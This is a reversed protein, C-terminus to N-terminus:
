SLIGWNLRVVVAWEMLVKVKGEQLKWLSCGVEYRESHFRKLPNTKQPNNAMGPPKRKRIEARVLLRGAREDLSAQDESEIEL